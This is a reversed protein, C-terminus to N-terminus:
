DPLVRVSMGARREVLAGRRGVVWECLPSERVKHHARWRAVQQEVAAANQLAALREALRTM